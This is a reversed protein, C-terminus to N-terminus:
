RLNIASKSPVLVLPARHNNYYDTSVGCRMSSTYLFICRVNALMHQGPCKATALGRQEGKYITSAQRLSARLEPNKAQGQRDFELVLLVDDCRRMPRRVGRAATRGKLPKKVSYKESIRNEVLEYAKLRIRKATM